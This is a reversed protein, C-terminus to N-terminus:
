IMDEIAKYYTNPILEIMKFPLEGTKKPANDAYLSWLLKPLINSFYLRSQSYDNILPINFNHTCQPLIPVFRGPGRGLLVGNESFTEKSVNERGIKVYKLRDNGEIIEGQLYPGIADAPILYAPIWLFCNVFEALVPGNNKVNVHLVPHQGAQSFQNPNDENFYAINFFLEMDPFRKRNIVDLVM